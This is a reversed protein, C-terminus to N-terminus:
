LTVHAVRKMMSILLNLLLQLLHREENIVICVAYSIGTLPLLYKDLIPDVM